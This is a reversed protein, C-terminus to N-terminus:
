VTVSPVHIGPQRLTQRSGQPPEEGTPEDPVVPIVQLSPYAIEVQRLEALDYLDQHRRAGFYLM